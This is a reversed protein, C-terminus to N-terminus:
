ILKNSNDGIEVLEFHWNLFQFLLPLRGSFSNASSHLIGRIKWNNICGNMQSCQRWNQALELHWATQYLSWTILNWRPPVNCLLFRGGWGIQVCQVCVHFLWTNFSLECNNCTSRPLNYWWHQKTHSLHMNSSQLHKTTNHPRNQVPLYSISFWPHWVTSKRIAYDNKDKYLMEYCVSKMLSTELVFSSNASFYSVWENSKQIM